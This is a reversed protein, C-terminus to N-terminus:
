RLKIVKHTGGIIPEVLEWHRNLAVLLRDDDVRIKDIRMIIQTIAELELAIQVGGFGGIASGQIDRGVM